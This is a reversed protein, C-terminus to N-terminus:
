CLPNYFLILEQISYAVHNNNNFNINGLYINLLDEVTMFDSLFLMGNNIKFKADIIVNNSM